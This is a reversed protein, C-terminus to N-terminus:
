IIRVIHSSIMLIVRDGCVFLRYTKDYIRNYIDMKNYLISIRYFDDHLYLINGDHVYSVYRDISDISNHLVICRTSYLLHSRKSVDVIYTNVHVKLYELRMTDCVVGGKCGEVHMMGYGDYIKYVGIRKRTKVNYVSISSYRVIYVIRHRSVYVCRISSDIWGDYVWRDYLRIPIDHMICRRIYSLKIYVVCTDYLIYVSDDIMRIYSTRINKTILTRTHTLLITHHIYLVHTDYSVVICHAGTHLSHMSCLITDHSEHIAHCRYKSYTYRYISSITTYIIYTDDYYLISRITHSTHIRHIISDM